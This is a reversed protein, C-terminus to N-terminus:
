VKQVTGPAHQARSGPYALLRRELRRSRPQASIVVAHRSLTAAGCAPCVGERLRRSPSASPARRSTCFHSLSLDPVKRSMFVPAECLCPRRILVRHTPCCFSRSHVADPLTQLDTWSPGPAQRRWSSLAWPVQRPRSEAPRPSTPRAPLWM